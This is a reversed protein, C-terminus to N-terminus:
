RANYRTLAAQKLEVCREIGLDTLTEIFADYEDLSKEGTIFQLANENVYTNIDAYISSFESNEESSMSATMPYYMDDAVENWVEMFAVSEAPTYQLETRWDALYSPSGQPMCYEYVANGPTLGKPSNLIQDTFQPNGSDDLTYTTGELGYNCLLWGEESFLYDLYRIALEPNKCDTSVCYQSM